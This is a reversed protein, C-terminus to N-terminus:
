TMFILSEPILYLRVFSFAFLLTNIEYEVNYDFASVYEVYKYGHLFYYPSILNVLIEAILKKYLGTTYLNDYKCIDRNAKAWDLWKLYKIVLAVTVLFKM